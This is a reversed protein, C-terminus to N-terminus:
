AAKEGNFQAIAGLADDVAAKAHEAELSRLWIVIRSVGAEAWEDFASPDPPVGFVNVPRERGDERARAIFRKVRETEGPIALLSWGDGYEFARDDSGEGNGSVYIPLPKQVPKPWSFIPDFNVFKGHYEAEDNAWIERVAEIHERLVDYRDAPNVGHNEMEEINWGAGASLWLRGNSILDVSAAEKALHLPDRQVIQLIGTGLTIRSTSIAAATLCVFLDLSRYYERPLPGGPYPTKRSVPIHSHEGFCMSEFGADEFMRAVTPVDLTEDTITGAVGFKM